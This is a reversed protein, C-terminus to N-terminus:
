SQVGLLKISDKYISSYETCSLQQILYLSLVDALIYVFSQDPKEDFFNVNDHDLCLFGFAITEAENGSSIFHEVFRNKLKSKTLSMPVVLTSRYCTRPDVQQEVEKTNTTPDFVSSPLWCELWEKELSDTDEKQNLLIENYKLVKERIIRCNKYENNEVAKPIDNCIYYKNGRNISEFATNRDAEFGQGKTSDVSPLSLLTFIQNDIFVKICMRPLIESRGDFFVESCKYASKFAKSLDEDLFSELEVLAEKLDLLLKENSEINNNTISRHIDKLNKHLENVFFTYQSLISQNECIYENLCDLIKYRNDIINNKHDLM